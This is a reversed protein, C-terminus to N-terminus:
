VFVVVHDYFPASDTEGAFIITPPDGSAGLAAKPGGGLSATLAGVLTLATLRSKLGSNRM